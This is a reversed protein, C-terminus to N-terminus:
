LHLFQLWTAISTSSYRCSLNGSEKFRSVTYHLMIFYLIHQNPKGVPFFYCESQQHRFIMLGSRSYRIGLLSLKFNKQKTIWKSLMSHRNPALWTILSVAFERSGLFKYDLTSTQLGFHHLPYISLTILWTLQHLVIPIPPSLLSRLFGHEDLPMSRCSWYITKHCYDGLIVLNSSYELSAPFKKTKKGGLKLFM